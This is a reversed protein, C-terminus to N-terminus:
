ANVAAGIAIRTPRRPRGARGRRRRGAAATGHSRRIRQLRARRARRWRTASRGCRYAAVDGLDDGAYVVSGAHREGLSNELALGKDIGPPRLELVLRGPELRLGHAAAVDALPGHLLSMGGTPGTHAPRAGRDRPAQGRDPRRAARRRRWCRPLAARVEAVSALSPADVESVVGGALSWREFGYSGLVVLRSLEQDTDATLLGAALGAPRGTLVVVTGLKASWGGCRSYRATTPGHSSRTPCSRRWRVTSIWCSFLRERRM